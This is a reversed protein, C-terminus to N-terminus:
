LRDEFAQRDLVAQYAASWEEWQHPHGGCHDGKPLEDGDVLEIQEGCACCYFRTNQM